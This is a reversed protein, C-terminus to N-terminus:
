DVVMVDILSSALDPNAHFGFPKSEDALFEDSFMLSYISLNKLM